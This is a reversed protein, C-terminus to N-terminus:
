HKTDVDLTPKAWFDSFFGSLLDTHPGFRNDGESPTVPFSDALANEPAWYKEAPQGSHPHYSIGDIEASLARVSTIPTGFLLFTKVLRHAAHPNM